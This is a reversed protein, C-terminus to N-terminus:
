PEKKIGIRRSEPATRTEPRMAPWLQLLWARTNKLKTPPSMAKFKTRNSESAAGMGEYMRLENQNTGTHIARM